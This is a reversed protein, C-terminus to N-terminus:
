TSGDWPRAVGKVHALSLINGTAEIGFSERQICLEAKVACILADMSSVGLRSKGTLSANSAAFRQM